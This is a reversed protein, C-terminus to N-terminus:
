LPALYAARPHGLRDKARHNRRVHYPYGPPRCRVRLDDHLYLRRLTCPPRLDRAFRFVFRPTVTMVGCIFLPACAAEGRWLGYAGIVFVPLQFLSLFFFFFFFLSEPRFLGNSTYPYVCAELYLFSKFWALESGNNFIGLVGGVFPDGSM